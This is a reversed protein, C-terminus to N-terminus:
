EGVIGLSHAMDGPRKLSHTSQNISQNVARLHLRRQEDAVVDHVVAAHPSALGGPVHHHTSSASQDFRTGLEVTIPQLRVNAHRGDVVGHEQLREDVRDDEAREARM